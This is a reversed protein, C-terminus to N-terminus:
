TYDHPFLDWVNGGIRFSDGQLLLLNLSFKCPRPEDMVKMFLPNFWKSVVMFKGDRFEVVLKPLEDCSIENQTTLVDGAFIWNGEIDLCGTNPLLMCEAWPFMKGEQTIILDEEHRLFTWLQRNHLVRVLPYNM